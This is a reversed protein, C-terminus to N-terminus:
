RWTESDSQTGCFLYHDPSWFFSARVVTAEKRDAGAHSQGVRLELYRCIGILALICPYLM